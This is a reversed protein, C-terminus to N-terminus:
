CLFHLKIMVPLQILYQLYVRQKGEEEVSCRIQESSQLGTLFLQSSTINSRILFGERAGGHLSNGNSDSWLLKAPPCVFGCTLSCTLTPNSGAQLPSIRDASGSLVNLALVQLPKQLNSDNHQSCRYLGSDATQVSRILLSTNVAMALRNKDVEEANTLVNGSPRFTFLTKWSTTGSRQFSWILQQGAEPQATKACPFHIFGGVTSYVDEVNVALTTTYSYSAKVAGGETLDCRWRRNHDSKQLELSLISHTRYSTIKFMDGQLATGEDDVWTLKVNDPVSRCDAIGGNCVLTCQLALDIGRMLDRGPVATITLLTLFVPTGGSHFYGNINQECDYRGADETHLHHIRLSSDPLVELRAAREPQKVTIKGGSALESSTEYRQSFTWHIFSNEYKQFGACPLTVTEGLSSYQLFSTLLTLVVPTGGKYLMGNLYQQCEYRGADETHLHHIRLSSDPLVELRAAREPQKVTIKGGSALESATGSRQSFTWYIFSNEYKQFGACPLTVTEGLSSYREFGCGARWGLLLFCLCSARLNKM